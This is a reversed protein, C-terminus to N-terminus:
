HHLPHRQQHAAGPSPPGRFLICTAPQALPLPNHRSLAHREAPAPWPLAKLHALLFLNTIFVHLLKLRSLAYAPPLIPQDQHRHPAHGPDPAEVGTGRLLLHAELM